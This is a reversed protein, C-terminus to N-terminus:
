RQQSNKGYKQNNLPNEVYEKQYQHKYSEKMSSEYKIDQSLKKNVAKLEALETKLKALEIAQEQTTKIVSELHEKYFASTGKYAEKMDKQYRLQKKLHSLENSSNM